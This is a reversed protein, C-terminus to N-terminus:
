VSNSARVNRRPSSFTLSTLSVSTAFRLRQAHDCQRPRHKTAHQNRNRERLRAHTPNLVGCDYDDCSPSNHKRVLLVYTIALLACPLPRCSSSAPPPSRCHQTAALKKTRRAMRCRRQGRDACSTKHPSLRVSARGSAVQRTRAALPIQVIRACSQIARRRVCM